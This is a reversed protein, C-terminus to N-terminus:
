KNNSKAVHDFSLEITRLCPTAKTWPWKKVGRFLATESFRSWFVNFSCFKIYNTRFKTNFPSFNSEKRRRESVRNRPFTILYFKWFAHNRLQVRDNAYKEFPEKAWNHIVTDSKVLLLKYINVHIYTGQITWCCYWYTFDGLLFLFGSM